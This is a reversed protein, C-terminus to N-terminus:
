SLDCRPVMILAIRCPAVGDDEKLEYLKNVFHALVVKARRTHGSRRLELFEHGLDFRVDLVSELMFNVSICVELSLVQM